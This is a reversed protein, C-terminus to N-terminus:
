AVNAAVLRLQHNDSVTNAVILASSKNRAVVIGKAGDETIAQAGLEVHPLNHLVSVLRRKVRGRHQARAVVEQGLYCGKSFSVTNFHTLNLMQPLFKMSTISSVLVYGSKIQFENSDIGQEPSETFGFKANNLNFRIEGTEPQETVFVKNPRTRLECRAFRMYSMLHKNVIDGVTPHNVLTLERDNGFVWGNAVVRGKIETIAMPIAIGDALDALDCTIYGQLFAVVNPGTLTACSVHCPSM